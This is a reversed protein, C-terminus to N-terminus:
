KQLFPLGLPEWPQACDRTCRKHAASSFCNPAWEGRAAELVETHPWTMWPCGLPGSGRGGHGRGQGFAAQVGVKGLGELGVLQCLGRQAPTRRDQRHVSVDQGCTCLHGLLPQCTRVRLQRGPRLELRAGVERGTEGRWACSLAASVGCPHTM